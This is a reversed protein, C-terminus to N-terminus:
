VRLPGAHRGRGAAGASCARGHIRIKGLVEALTKKMETTIDESMVVRVDFGNFLAFQIKNNDHLMQGARAFRKDFTSKDDFKSKV